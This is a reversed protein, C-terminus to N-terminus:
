IIILANLTNLARKICGGEGEGGGGASVTINLNIKKATDIEAHCIYTM